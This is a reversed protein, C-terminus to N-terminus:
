NKLLEHASSYMMKRYSGGPLIGKITNKYLAIMAPLSKKRSGRYSGNEYFFYGMRLISNSYGKYIFFM